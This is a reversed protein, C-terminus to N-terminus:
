PTAERAGGDSAERKAVADSATERVFLEELSQGNRTLDEIPADVVKRGQNILIVRRCIAEVEALIHTSLIVTQQTDGKGPAALDRILSRIEHIQLPDLGVPPEDLILVPPEHVIAQALGVRQRFGKSLTGIVRRRVSTLGCREVARDIHERRARRPIDKIRAIFALYSSVTMEPYLPPTEPLYGIRRRAELPNEFIDYDAITATGNTPPIFGTLMRMTTTKGAANPGLFGVVEGKQVSFDVGDVAVTDGYRKTLERAEIM